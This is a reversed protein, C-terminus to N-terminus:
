RLVFFSISYIIIVPSEGREHVIKKTEPEFEHWEAPTHHFEYAM